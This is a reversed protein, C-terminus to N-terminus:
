ENEMMEVSLRELEQQSVLEVELQNPTIKLDILQNVDMWRGEYFVPLM